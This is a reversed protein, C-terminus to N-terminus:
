TKFPEMCIGIVPCDNCLWDRWTCRFVRVKSIIILLTGSFWYCMREFKSIILGDTASREFKWDHHCSELDNAWDNTMLYRNTHCFHRYHNLLPLIFTIIIIRIIFYMKCGVRMVCIVAFKFMCACAKISYLYYVQFKLSCFRKKQGASIQVVIWLTCSPKSEFWYLWLDRVASKRENLWTIYIIWDLNSLISSLQLLAFHAISESYRFWM